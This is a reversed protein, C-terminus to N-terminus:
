EYNLLKKTENKLQQRYSKKLARNANKTVLKDYRSVGKSFGGVYGTKAAKEKMPRVEKAYPKLKKKFDNGTNQADGGEALYEPAYGKRFNRKTRSM